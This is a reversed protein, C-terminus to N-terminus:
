GESPSTRREADLAALLNEGIALPGSKRRYLDKDSERFLEDFDLERSTHCGLSVSFTPRHQWGAKDLVAQIRLRAVEAEEPGTAPMLVLFEDGGYRAVVDACRSGDLLAAAVAKLVTDGAAHGFEDNVAKFRDVDAVIISLDGGYRQLRAKEREAAKQLGRRNLVGTLPDRESIRRAEALYYAKEIGIAAFDAITSLVRMDYATFPRGDLRNLLEIVGFVKDGSRLPVAIISETRFGTISDLRDSWRHDSSTSEVIAPVGRNAVWGAIGESLPIRTGVLSESGKGVAVAFALESKEADVLLLSWNLPGFFSGIHEMVRDLIGRISGESVISTGISSFVSLRILDDMGPERSDDPM